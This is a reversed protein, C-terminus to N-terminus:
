GAMRLQQLSTHYQYWFRDRVGPVGHAHQLGYKSVWVPAKPPYECRYKWRDACFRCHCTIELFGYGDPLITFRVYPHGELANM